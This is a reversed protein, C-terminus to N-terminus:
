AKDLPSLFFFFDKRFQKFQVNDQINKLENLLRCSDLFINVVSVGDKEIVM